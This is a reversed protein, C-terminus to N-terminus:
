LTYRWGWVMITSSHHVIIKLIRQEAQPREFGAQVDYLSEQLSAEVFTDFLTKRDTPRVFNNEAFTLWGDRYGWGTPCFCHIVPRFFPSSNSRTNEIVCLIHVRLQVFWLTAGFTNLTVHWFGGGYCRRWFVLALSVVVSARGSWCWELGQFANPNRRWVDEIACLRRFVGQFDQKKERAARLMDSCDANRCTTPPVSQAWMVVFWVFVFCLSVFGSVVGFPLTSPFASLREWLPHSLFPFYFCWEWLSFRQLDKTKRRQKSFMWVTVRWSNAMRGKPDGLPKGTSHLDWGASLYGTPIMCQSSYTIKM